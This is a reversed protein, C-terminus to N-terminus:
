RVSGKLQMPRLAAYFSAVQENPKLAPQVSALSGNVLSPALITSQTALGRSMVYGTPVPGSAPAIWTLAVSNTGSVTFPGAVNSPLSVQAGIASQVTYCYTNAAPKSDTYALGTSQSSQNLPTYATGSTSPCTFVTPNPPVQGRCGAAVLAFLSVLAIRKM